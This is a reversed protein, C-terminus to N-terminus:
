DNTRGSAIAKPASKRKVAFTKEKLALDGLDTPLDAHFKARHNTTLRIKYHLDL